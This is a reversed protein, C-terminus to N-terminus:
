GNEKNTKILVKAEELYEICSKIKKNSGRYLIIRGGLSRKTKKNRTIRVYGFKDSAIYISAHNPDDPMCIEAVVNSHSVAKSAVLLAEKLHYKTDILDSQLKNIDEEYDMHSIRIGTEQKTELRELTDVNLLIAGSMHYSEKLIELIEEARKVKLKKLIDIVIKISENDTEAEITTVPLADIYTIEKTNIKNIQISISDANGKSHNLSRSILNKATQEILSKEVIKEAASVHFVTNGIKQSSLMQLSYLEM